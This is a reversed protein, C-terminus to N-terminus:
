IGIQYILDTGYECDWLLRGDFTLGSPDNGPAAFSKIVMGDIDIQYILGLLYDCHWLYKGDFTLGMPTGGPTAFSRIVEGSM